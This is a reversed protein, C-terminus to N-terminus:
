NNLVFKIEGSATNGAEDTAFFSAKFNGSIGAPAYYKETVEISKGTLPYEKRFGSGDNIEMWVAALSTNDTVMWRMCLPFGQPLEPVDLPYVVKIEPKATDPEIAAERTCAFIILCIIISFPFYRKM